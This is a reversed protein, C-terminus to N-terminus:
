PGYAFDFSLIRAWDAADISYRAGILAKWVRIFVAKGGRIADGDVYLLESYTLLCTRILRTLACRRLNRSCRPLEFLEVMKNMEGGAIKIEM